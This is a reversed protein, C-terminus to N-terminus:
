VEAMVVAYRGSTYSGIVKAPSFFKEAIMRVTPYDLAEKGKIRLFLEHSNKQLELEFGDVYRYICGVVRVANMMEKAAEELTMM